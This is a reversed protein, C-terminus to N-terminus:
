EKTGIAVIKNHPNYTDQSLLTKSVVAGNLKLIRYAVSKCGNSGKQVVKQQGKALTPDKKNITSYSIWRTVYSQVEVTYETEEKLGYIKININGGSGSCVIKIPYNRTNKFKFDPGGWSVTADRGVPVYGPNFGHNHREVIGLNSLLVANYLTSSVQCIGGGIGTTVEGGVYVAASKFGAAATRRGVTTNYSFTEGPMVVTGNIKNSALRINTSRNVNSSSYTTSYTALLNPFAETGIQNTTVAPSLVKLAISCSDQTNNFLALAEDMSIAFDIGDVHPHVVYPNTTYYADQPTHYIEDHIKNLDLTTADKFEVPIDIKTINCNLNNVIYIIQDKLQKSNVVVGSKGKSIILNNNEVYYSSDILRDSFNTQMETILSDLTEESYSFGPNIQTGVLLSILIEYNDKLLNGSRGVNYAIDVANQLDFNIDFQEPLVELNYDNHTLTFTQSLKQNFANQVKELAEERTLGSINVDKISIGNIITTQNKTVLAFITSFFTLLLLIVFIILSLIIFTKNSKNIDKSSVTTIKEKNNDNNIVKDDVLINEENVDEQINEDEKINLSRISKSSDDLHALNESYVVSDVDQMAKTAADEINNKDEALISNISTTEINKNEASKAVNKNKKSM